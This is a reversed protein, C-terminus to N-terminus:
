LPGPALYLTTAVGGATYLKDSDTLVTIGQGNDNSVGRLSVTWSTVAAPDYVIPYSGGSYYGSSPAHSGYWLASDTVMLRAQRVASSGSLYLFGNGLTSNTITVDAPAYLLVSQFRNMSYDHFANVGNMTVRFNLDPVTGPQGVQLFTGYAASAKGESLVNDLTLLCPNVLQFDIGNASNSGGFVGVGFGGFHPDGLYRVGVANNATRLNYFHIAATNTSEMEVGWQNNYLEASIVAIESAAGQSAQDGFRLGSGQSFNGAQINILTGQHTGNAPTSSTFVIGDTCAPTGAVLFNMFVFNTNNVVTLAPGAGTCMIQTAGYGSEGVLNVHAQPSGSLVLGSVNYTGFPIWVTGSTAVAANLANQMAATDDHQGDGYAGFDKVSVRRALANRVARDVPGGIAPLLPANQACVVVSLFLLTSFVRIPVAVLDLIPALIRRPL